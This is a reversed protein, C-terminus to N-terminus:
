ESERPHGADGADSDGEGGTGPESTREPKSRRLTDVVGDHDIYLLGNLHDTEHQLAQGLLGEGRVRVAKGNRDRAKITVKEARKVSGWYGPVSLCGEHFEVDGTRKIIEPNIIETIADDIEIVAVRLPIGIQPAALGVGPAAKMTEIMDDLLRHLARDFQTVRKAKGRLVPNGVVLIPRVAM